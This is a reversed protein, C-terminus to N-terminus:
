NMHNGQPLLNWCKHDTFIWNIYLAPSHCHSCISVAQDPGPFSPSFSPDGEALYFPSQRFPFRLATSHKECVSHLSYSPFTGIHWMLGGKQWLSYNQLLIGPPQLTHVLGPHHQTDTLFPTATASAAESPTNSNAQNRGNLVLRKECFTTRKSSLKM